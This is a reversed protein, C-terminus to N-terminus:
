VRFGLGSVRFEPKGQSEKSAVRGGCRLMSQGGGQSMGSDRLVHKPNLTQPKPNLTQPKLTKPNLSLVTM